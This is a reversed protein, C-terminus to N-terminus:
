SAAPALRQFHSCRTTAKTNGHLWSVARTVNMPAATLVHQLHTKQLGRYRTRRLEFSRTGQSITGEVGAPRKYREKFEETEQRQRVEQMALYQAQPRLVLSRGGVEARTCEVSRFACLMDNLRQAEKGGGILYGRYNTLISHDFGQDTLRLAPSEASRGRNAVFLDAYTSDRYWFGLRDRAAIWVNNGKPYVQRAARATDEPVPFWNRAHLTM